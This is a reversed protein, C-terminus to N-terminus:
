HSRPSTACASGGSNPVLSLLFSAVGFFWKGQAPADPIVVRGSAHDVWSIRTTRTESTTVALAKGAPLAFTVLVVISPQTQGAEVSLKARVATPVLRTGDVSFTLPAMAERTLLERLTSLTQSKVNSAAKRLVQETAAGSGVRYGILVAVECREVQAVVTRVPPFTHGWAPQGALCIAVAAAPLWRM